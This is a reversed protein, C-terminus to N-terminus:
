VVVIIDGYCHDTDLLILHETTYKFPKTRAGQYCAKLPTNGLNKYVEWHIPTNGVSSGVLFASHLTMSHM